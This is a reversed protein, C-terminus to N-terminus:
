TGGGRTKKAKKTRPEIRGETFRKIWEATELMERGLVRYEGADLNVIIDMPERDEGHLDGVRRALQSYLRAIGKTSDKKLHGEARGKAKAHLYAMTQGLGSTLLRAPLKLAETRYEDDNELVERVETWAWRARDAQSRARTSRDDSPRRM